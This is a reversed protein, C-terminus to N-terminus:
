GAWPGGGGYGRRYARGYSTDPLDLRAARCRCSNSSSPQGRTVRRIAASRIMMHIAQPIRTRSTTAPIPPPPTPDCSSAMLSTQMTTRITPPTANRTRRFPAYGLVPRGRSTGQNRARALAAAPPPEHRGIAPHGSPTCRVSDPPLDPCASLWGDISAVGRSRPLARVGSAWYARSSPGGSVRFSFPRRGARRTELPLVISRAGM